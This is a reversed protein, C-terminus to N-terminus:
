KNQLDRTEDPLEILITQNYDSIALNVNIDLATKTGNEATQVGLQSLDALMVFSESVKIPLFTDKDIWIKMILDKITQQPDTNQPFEQLGWQDQLTKMLLKTDPIIQLNYCVQGNVNEVGLVKLDATELIKEQQNVIDQGKWLDQPAIQKQWTEHMGLGSSKVYMDKGIAYIESQARNKQTKQAEVTQNLNLIMVMKQNIKDISGEITSEQTIKLDNQLLIKTDMKLNVRYTKVSDINQSVKQRIEDSTLNSAQTTTACGSLLVVCVVLILFYIISPFKSTYHLPSPSKTAPRNYTSM